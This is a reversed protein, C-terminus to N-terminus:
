RWDLGGGAEERPTWTNTRQSETEIEAKCTHEDIGSKYIGYTHTHTHTHTAKRSNFQLLEKYIKPTLM